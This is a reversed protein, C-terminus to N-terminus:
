TWTLINVGGYPFRLSVYLLLPLRYRARVEQYKFNFLQFKTNLLDVGTFELSNGALDRVADAGREIERPRRSIAPMKLLRPTRPRRQSVHSAGNRVMAADAIKMDDGVYFNM